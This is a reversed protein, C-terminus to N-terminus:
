ARLLRQPIMEQLTNNSGPRTQGASRSSLRLHRMPGVGFESLVRLRPPRSTSGTSYTLKRVPFRHITVNQIRFSTRPAKTTGAVSTSTPCPQSTSDPSSISRASVVREIPCANIPHTVLLCSLSLRSSANIAFPAHHKTENLSQDLRRQPQPFPLVNNLSECFDALHDRPDRGRGTACPAPRGSAPSLEEAHEIRQAALLRTRSTRHKLTGAERDIM